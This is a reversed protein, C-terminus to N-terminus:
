KKTKAKRSKAGAAKDSSSSPQADDASNKRPRGVSRKKSPPKAQLKDQSLEDPKMNCFTVGLERVVSSTLTPPKSTCCFCRSQRTPSKFGKNLEHIRSSRRLGEDSIHIHKGKKAQPPASSSTSVPHPPTKNGSELDVDPSGSCMHPDTAQALDLTPELQGTFDPLTPPSLELNNTFESHEDCTLETLSFSPRTKPLSFSYGSQQTAESIFKWAPSQLFERAWDFSTQKLLLM